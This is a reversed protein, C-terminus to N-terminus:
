QSAQSPQISNVNSLSVYETQGPRVTVPVDWRPRADGIVASV